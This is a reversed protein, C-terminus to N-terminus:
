STRGGPIAQLPSADASAPSDDSYDQLAARAAERNRRSRAQAASEPGSGGPSVPLEACEIYGDIKSARLVTTVTFHRSPAFGDRAHLGGHKGVYGRVAAVLDAPEYDRLRARIVRAQEAGPQSRWSTVGLSIAEARMSDWASQVDAGSAAPPPSDREKGADQTHTHTHTHPPPMKQGPIEGGSGQERSDLGQFESWKPWNISTISGQTTISMSVHEAAGQLTHRASRLTGKGTVEMLDGARLAITRSEEATLGDRAWRQNMAGMLRVLTALHDNSMPEVTLRDAVKFWHKRPTTM